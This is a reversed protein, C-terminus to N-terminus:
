RKAFCEVSGWQTRVCSGTPILDPADLCGYVQETGDLDARGRDDRRMAEFVTTFFRNDYQANM